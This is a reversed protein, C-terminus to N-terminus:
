LCLPHALRRVWDPGLVRLPGSPFDRRGTHELRFLPLSILSTLTSHRQLSWLLQRTPVLFSFHTLMLTAGPSRPCTARGRMLSLM